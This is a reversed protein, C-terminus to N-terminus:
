RGKGGALPRVWDRTITGTVAQGPPLELVLRVGDPLQATNAPQASGQPGSAPTRAAAVSSSTVDSSQPHTWANERFYFLQWDELPAVAVERAREEDGPNRAWLDARAWAQALEGNTTM